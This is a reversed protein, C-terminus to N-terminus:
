SVTDDKLEKRIITLLNSIIPIAENSKIYEEIEDDSLIEPVSYVSCGELSTFTEGDNLVMILMEPHFEEWLETATGDDNIYKNPQNYM